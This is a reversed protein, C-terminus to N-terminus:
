TMDEKRKKERERMEKRSMWRKHKQRVTLMNHNRMETELMLRGKM